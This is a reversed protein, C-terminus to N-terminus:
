QIHFRPNFIAMKITDIYKNNFKVQYKLTGEIIFGIKLYLQLAAYNESLVGLNIKRIELNNFCYNIVLNIAELAYGKGWENKDGIMIGLEAFGNYLDIPDIKINGIHKDPDKIRITWLHTKNEIINKIYIELKEFTYEDSFGMFRTVEKDNLWSLYENTIEKESIQKLILRNSELIPLYKIM